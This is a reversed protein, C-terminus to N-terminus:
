FLTPDEVMKLQYSHNAVVLDYFLARSGTSPDVRISKTISGYAAEITIPSQIKACVLEYGEKMEAAYICCAVSAYEGEALSMTAEQKRAYVIVSHPENHMEYRMDFYFPKRTRNRITIVAHANKFLHVGPKVYDIKEQMPSVIGFCDHGKKVIVSLPSSAHPMLDCVTSITTTAITCKQAVLATIAPQLTDVFAYDFVASHNPKLQRLDSNYVLVDKLNEDGREFVNRVHMSVPIGAANFFTTQKRFAEEQNDAGYVFTSVVILTYIRHM